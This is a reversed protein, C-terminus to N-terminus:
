DANAVRKLSSSIQMENSVRQIQQDQEKSHALVAEIQKKLQGITTAQEQLKNGQMQLECEQEEVKRHEKLFENLLMANVADYRVTYIEGNKDRVILDPNVEAVEEAILGFQPSDTQDSKYEFTVPRLALISESIKDMPRIQEKFRISSSVTGLQDNSDILVPIADAHFTTVGRINGIFCTNSLNAGRVDSGICIVNGATTVNAGAAAGMAVNNAGTTNGILASVGTATNGHGTTNQSLAGRGTATNAFGTTDDALAEAGTATNAVADTSSRLANL